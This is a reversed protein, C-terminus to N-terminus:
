LAISLALQRKAVDIVKEVLRSGIGRGSNKEPDIVFLSKVELSNKINYRRFEDNPTKKYVLIGVPIQGEYLLQCRRDRSERIKELARSQDGYLPVIQQKFVQAVYDMHENSGKVTQFLYTPDQSTIPKSLQTSSSSVASM